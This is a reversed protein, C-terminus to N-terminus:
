EATPDRHEVKPDRSRVTGGTKKPDPLSPFYYEAVRAAVLRDAQDKPFGAIEGANWKQYKETLKVATFQM